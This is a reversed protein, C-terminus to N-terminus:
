LLTYEANLATHLGAAKCVHLLNSASAALAFCAEPASSVSEVLGKLKMNNTKLEKTVNDM